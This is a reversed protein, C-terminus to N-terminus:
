YCFSITTVGDSTYNSITIPTAPNSKAGHNASSQLLACEEVVHLQRTAPRQYYRKKNM